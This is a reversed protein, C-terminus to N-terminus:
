IWPFPVKKGKRSKLLDIIYDQGVFVKIERYFEGLIRGMDKQTKERISCLERYELSNVEEIPISSPYLDCLTVTGTRPDWDSTQFSYGHKKLLREFWKRMWFRKNQYRTMLNLHPSVSIPIDTLESLVRKQQYNSCGIEASDPIEIERDKVRWENEISWELNYVYSDFSDKYIERAIEEKMLFQFAWPSIRDLDWFTVRYIIPRVNYKEKLYDFPFNIFTDHSVMLMPMNPLASLHREPLSSFCVMNPYQVIKRPFTSQVHEPNGTLFGDKLVDKLMYFPITHVLYDSEKYAPLYVVPNMEKLLDFDEDGILERVKTSREVMTM